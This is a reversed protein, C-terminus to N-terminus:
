ETISAWFCRIGWHDKLRKLLETKGTALESRILYVGPKAFTDLPLESIYRMNVRLYAAIDQVPPLEITPQDANLRAAEARLMGKPLPAREAKWWTMFDPAGVWSAVVGRPDHEDQVGCTCVPLGDASKDTSIRFSPHRDPHAPNPCRRYQYKGRGKVVPTARDLAPLVIQTWWYARATDWNVGVGVPAAAERRRPNPTPEPAPFDYRPAADLAAQFAVADFGLLRWLDNTDAKSPLEKPLERCDFTIGSGQLADRLKTAAGQGAPDKDPYYRVTRVGLAILDTILSDPLNLEGFFSLVNFLGAAHLTLVAPEGNAIYLVGDAVEIAQWLGAGVHYYQAKTGDLWQYKPKASSDYAKWRRAIECGEFDLIPYVWGSGYRDRGPKWCMTSAQQNIGRATLLQDQSAFDFM